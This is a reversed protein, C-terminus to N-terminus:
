IFLRGRRLPEPRHRVGKYDTAPVKSSRKESGTWRCSALHQSPANQELMRTHLNKFPSLSPSRKSVGKSTHPARAQLEWCSRGGGVECELGPEFRLAACPSSAPRFRLARPSGSGGGCCGSRVEQSPPPPPTTSSPHHLPPVQCSQSYPVLHKCSIMGWSQLVVSNVYSRDSAQRWKIKSIKQKPHTQYKTTTTTKCFHPVHVM